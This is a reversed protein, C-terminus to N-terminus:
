TRDTPSPALYARLTKLNEVRQAFEGASLVVASMGAADKWPLTDLLAAVAPAAATAVASIRVVHRLAWDKM